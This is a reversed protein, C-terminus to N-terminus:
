RSAERSRSTCRAVRRWCARLTRMSSISWKLRKLSLWPWSAPSAKSAWNPAKSARIHGEIPLTDPNDITLTFAGQEDTKQTDEATRTGNRYAAVTADVVPELMLSTPNLDSATGSLKVSAPANSPPTNGLCSLDPIRVLADPPADPVVAADPTVPPADPKTSNDSGCAAVIFLTASIKRMALPRVGMGVRAAM